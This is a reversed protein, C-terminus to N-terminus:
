AATVCPTILTKIDATGLDASVDHVVRLYRKNARPMAIAIEDGIELSSFTVAGSTAITSWSTSGDLSDQVNITLTGSSTTDVLVQAIVSVNDVAGVNVGIDLASSTSDAALVDTAVFILNNDLLFPM